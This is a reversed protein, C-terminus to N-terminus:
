LERVIKKHIFEDRDLNSMLERPMVAHHIETLEEAIHLLVGIENLNGTWCETHTELPFMISEFAVNIERVCLLASDSDLDPCGNETYGIDDILWELIERTNFDGVGHYETLCLGRLEDPIDAWYSNQNIVDKM